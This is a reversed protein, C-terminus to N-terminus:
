AAGTLFLEREAQRRRTLGAMVRGGAKNWRLFEDAAGDEDGSRLKRMLTSSRMAVCGVNFTWCVLADFQGQTLPIGAAANSVCKEFAAVDSRLFEDAEEETITMGPMVEPGTHGVGVTWPDGGTGPDPYSELRLGEFQKILDLGANSIKM